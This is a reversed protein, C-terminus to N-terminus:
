GWDGIIQELGESRNEEQERPQPHDAGAGQVEDGPNDQTGNREGKNRDPSELSPSLRSGNVGLSGFTPLMPM